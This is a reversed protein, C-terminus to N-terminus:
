ARELHRRELLREAHAGRVVERGVVDRAIELRRDHALQAGFPHAGRAAVRHAVEPAKALMRTPRALLRLRAVARALAGGEAALDADGELEERREGARARARPSRRVEEEVGLLEVDEGPAPDLEVGAEPDAIQLVVEGDIELVDAELLREEVVAR